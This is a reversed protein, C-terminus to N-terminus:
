IEVTSPLSNSVKSLTTILVIVQKNGCPWHCSSAVLEYTNRGMVLVDISDLFSAFGFDEGEFGPDIDGDRGTLWDPSGGERAIFVDLTTLYIGISEILKRKIRYNYLLSNLKLVKKFYDNFM